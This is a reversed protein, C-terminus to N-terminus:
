LLYLHSISRSILETYEYKDQNNIIFWGRKYTNEDSEFPEKDIKYLFNDYPILIFSSM